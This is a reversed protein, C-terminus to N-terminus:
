TPRTKALETEVSPKAFILPSFIPVGRVKRSIAIIAFITAIVAVTSAIVIGAILGKNIADNGSSMPPPGAPPPHIPPTPPTSPSTIECGHDVENNRYSTRGELAEPMGAVVTYGERTTWGLPNATPNCYQCESEIDEYSYSAYSFHSGAAM